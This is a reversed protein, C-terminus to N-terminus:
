CQWHFTASFVPLSSSSSGFGAYCAQRSLPLALLHAWRGGTPGDGEAWQEPSEQQGGQQVLGLWCSCSFSMYWLIADLLHCLCSDGVEWNFLGRAARREPLEHQGQQPEQDLQSLLHLFHLTDPFAALSCSAACTPALSSIPTPVSYLRLTTPFAVLSCSAALDLILPWLLPRARLSHVLGSQLPSRNSAACPFRFGGM